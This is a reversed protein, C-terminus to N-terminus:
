LGGGIFIQSQPLPVASSTTLTVGKALFFYNLRKVQDSINERGELISKLALYTETNYGIEEVDITEFEEDTLSEAGIFAFISDCFGRDGGADPDYNFTASTLEPTVQNDDTKLLILVKVYAEAEIAQLINDEIEQRTNSKELSGNSNAWLVGNWYKKLSDIELIYRLVTDDPIEADEAFSTLRGAQFRENPTIQQLTTPYVTSERMSISLSDIEQLTNSTQFHVKVRLFKEGEIPLSQINALATALTNAQAFSGNSTAWASENWYLYIGSQGIQFSYRPANTEDTDFDMAQLFEGSGVHEFEPLEVGSELYAADPVTYSPDHNATHQNTGFTIVDDFFSKSVADSGGIELFACASRLFTGDLEALLFGNGFVYMKGGGSLDWSVEIVAEQGQTASFSLLSNAYINAGDKDNVLFFLSGNSHHLLQIVSNGSGESEAIKFFTQSDTPTGNYDPTWRLRICGSQVGIRSTLDYKVSRNGGGACDLKGGSVVAGNVPTGTMDGGPFDWNIDLDSNYTIGMLAGVPLQGRQRLVSGVFEVLDPDYDFDTDSAFDQSYENEDEILKLRAVGDAIEVADEDFEYKSPDNFIYAKQLSM